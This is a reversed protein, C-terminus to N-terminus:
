GGFLCCISLRDSYAYAARIRLGRDMAKGISECLLVTWDIYRVDVQASLPARRQTFSWWARSITKEFGTTPTWSHLPMSARRYQRCPALVDRWIETIEMRRRCCSIGCMGTGLCPTLRGM